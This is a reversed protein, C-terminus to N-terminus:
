IVGTYGSDLGFFELDYTQNTLPDISLDYTGARRQDDSINETILKIPNIIESYTGISKNSLFDYAPYNIWLTETPPTTVLLVVSFVKDPLYGSYQYIASNTGDLDINLGSKTAYYLDDPTFQSSVLDVPYEEMSVISGDNKTIKLKDSIRYNNEIFNTIASGTTSDTIQGTTHPYADAVYVGKSGRGILYAYFLESPNGLEIDKSSISTVLVDKSYVQGSFVVDARGTFAPENIGKFAGTIESTSVSGGNRGVAYTGDLYSSLNNENLDSLDLTSISSKASFPVSSIKAINIANRPVSYLVRIPSDNSGYVDKFKSDDYRIDYSVVERFTKQSFLNIGYNLSPSQDYGDLTSVWLTRETEGTTPPLILEGTYFSPWSVGTLVSFSNLVTNYRGSKDSDCGTLNRTDGYAPSIAIDCFSVNADLGLYISSEAGGARGLYQFGGNAVTGAFEEATEGYKQALVRYSGTHGAGTYSSYEILFSYFGWEGSVGSFTTERNWADAGTSARRSISLTYDPTFGIAIAGSYPLTNDQALTFFEGTSDAKVWGMFEFRGTQQNSFLSTEFGLDGTTNVLREFASSYPAVAYANNLQTYGLSYPGGNSSINWTGYAILHNGLPGHDWTTYGPSMFNYISGVYLDDGFSFGTTTNVFSGSHPKMFEDPVFYPYYVRAGKIALEQEAGAKVPRKLHLGNVAGFIGSLAKATGTGDAIYSAYPSADGETYDFYANGTWSKMLDTSQIVSGDLTILARNTSAFNYPIVQGSYSSDSLLDYSNVQHIFGLNYWGGLPMASLGTITTAGLAVEAALATDGSVSFARTMLDMSVEIYGQNDISITFGKNDSTRRKEFLIASSEPYNELFFDGYFVTGALVPPVQNGDLYQDVTGTQHSYSSVGTATITATSYPYCGVNDIYFDLSSTSPLGSQMVFGIKIEGSYSTTIPISYTKFTSNTTPIVFSTSTTADGTVYVYLGTGSNVQVDFSVIVNNTVIGSPITIEAGEDGAYTGAFTNAPIYVQQVYNETSSSTSLLYDNILSQRDVRHTAQKFYNVIGLGTYNTPITVNEALEGYCRGTVYQADQEVPRFNGDLYPNPSFNSVYNSGFYQSADSGAVAQGSTIVYNRISSKFRGEPIVSGTLSVSNGVDDTLSYIAGLTRPANILLTSWVEQSPNSELFKGQDLGILIKSSYAALKWDPLLDLYAQESAATLTIESVAPAPAVGNSQQTIKFKIPNSTHRSGADTRPYSYIPITSLDIVQSSYNTDLIESLGADTWGTQGSYFVGVTTTGGKYPIYDVVASVFQTINVIPDFPSTYLSQAATTYSQKSGTLSDIALEGTVIKVASWLSEGVVGSLDLTYLQSNDGSLLPAGLEIRSTNSGAHTTDFKGIGAVARGDETSLYIDSGDIGIRIRKPSSLDIPVAVEPHNISQIGYPSIELYDWTSEVDIYIGHNVFRGSFPNLGSQSVSGFGSLPPNGTIISSSLVDLEMTFTTGGGTVYTYWNQEPSGSYLRFSSVGQGTYIGGGIIPITPMPTKIYWAGASTIHDQTTDVVQGVYVNGTRLTFTGTIDDYYNLDNDLTWAAVPVWYGIDSNGSINDPVLTVYGGTVAQKTGLYEVGSDDDFTEKSWSGVNPIWSM